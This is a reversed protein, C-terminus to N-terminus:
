KRSIEVSSLYDRLQGLLNELEATNKRIAAQEIETGFQTLRPFGFPSGTGKIQHGFVRTREYDGRVLASQLASLDDRCSDIYESVMEPPLSKPTPM